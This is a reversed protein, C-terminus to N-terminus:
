VFFRQALVTLGLWLVINVALLVTRALNFHSVVVSEFPVDSM